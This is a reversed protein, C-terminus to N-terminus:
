EQPPFSARLRDIEVQLQDHVTKLGAGPDVEGALVPYILGEGLVGLSVFYSVVEETYRGFAVSGMFAQQIQAETMGSHASVEQLFTDFASRRAPPM